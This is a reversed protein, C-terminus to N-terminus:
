RVSVRETRVRPWPVIVVVTGHSGRARDSVHIYIPDSRKEMIDFHVATTVLSVVGLVVVIIGLVHAIRDVALYLKSAGCSWSESGGAM